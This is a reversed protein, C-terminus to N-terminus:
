PRAIEATAKAVARRGVARRDLLNLERDGRFCLGDIEAQRAIRPVHRHAVVVADIREAVPEVTQIGPVRHRSPAGARSICM